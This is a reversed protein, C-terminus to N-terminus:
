SLINKKTIITIKGSYNGYEIDVPSIATIGITKEEAVELHIVKDFILFKKIGGRVSFEVKIPIDYDNKIILNRQSSSGLTIMGFTLATTNLDFGTKNGIILTTIIEEKELIMLSNLYLILLFMILSVAFMLIILKNKTEKKM